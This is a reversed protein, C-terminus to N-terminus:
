LARVSALNNPRRNRSQASCNFIRKVSAYISVGACERQLSINNYEQKQTRDLWEAEGPPISSCCSCSCSCCCFCFCRRIMALLFTLSWCRDPFFSLGELRTHYTNHQQQVPIYVHTSRTCIHYTAQQWSLPHSAANIIHQDHTCIHSNNQQNNPQNLIHEEQVHLQWYLMYFALLCCSLEIWSLEVWSLVICCCECLWWVVGDVVSVTYCLFLSVIAFIVWICCCSQIYVLVCWCM